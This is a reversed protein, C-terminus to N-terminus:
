IMSNLAVAYLGALRRREAHDSFSVHPLITEISLLEVTAEPYSQRLSQAFFDDHALASVVCRLKMMSMAGQQGLIKQLERGWGASISRIVDAQGAAHTADLHGGVYLTLMSEAAQEATGTALAIKRVLTRVGFPYSGFFVCDHDNMVAVDTLEGHIHALTYTGHDPLCIRMGIFQLLLSSHFYISNQHFTGCAEKLREIMRDGALSMTYSVEVTGANKGIWAAMSYGNLRVDFIKEEIVRVPQGGAPMMKAREEEILREVYAKSIPMEKPLQASLTKAQSVIWPSSLAFHIATIKKPVGESSHRAHLNRLCADRTESVARLTMKTLYNSDTHPKLLINANYIFIVNPLTGKRVLVLSGRVISSQVDLILILNSTSKSSFLPM